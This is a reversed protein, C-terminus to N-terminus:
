STYNNPQPQSSCTISNTQKHIRGKMLGDLLRLGGEEAVNVIPDERKGSMVEAASGVTEKVAEELARGVHGM